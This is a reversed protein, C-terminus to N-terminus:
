WGKGDVADAYADLADLAHVSDASAARLAGRVVPRLRALSEDAALPGVPSYAGDPRHWRRTEAVWMTGAKPTGDSHVEVPYLVVAVAEKVCRWCAKAPPWAASDPAADDRVFAGVDGPMDVGHVTRQQECMQSFEDASRGRVTSSDVGGSM